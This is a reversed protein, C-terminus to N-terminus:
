CAVHNYRFSWGRSRENGRNDVFVILPSINIFVDRGGTSPCLIDSPPFYISDEGLCHPTSLVPPLDVIQTTNSVETTNDVTGGTTSLETANEAPSSPPPLPEVYISQNTVPSWGAPSFPSQYPPRYPEQVVPKGYSPRMYSTPYQYHSQKAPAVHAQRNNKAMQVHQQQYMHVPQVGYNSQPYSYSGGANRRQRLYIPQFRISCFNAEERFCISYRLGQISGLGVGQENDFNFSSIHGSAPGYHYQLCGPPARVVSHKEIQIAKILWKAASQGSLTFRLTIAAGIQVQDVPLIIHQGNNKGCLRPARFDPNAGEATFSDSSCHGAADPGPLEFSHFEIRIQVVNHMKTISHTCLDSNSSLNPYNSNSFWTNNLLSSAGCRLAKTCCIGFGPACNGDVIGGLTACTDEARCHGATLSTTGVCAPPTLTPLIIPALTPLSPFLNSLLNQGHVNAAFLMALVAAQYIVKAM